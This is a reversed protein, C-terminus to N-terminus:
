NNIGQGIDLRALSSSVVRSIRDQKGYHIDRYLSGILMSDQILQWENKDQFCFHTKTWWVRWGKIDMLEIVKKGVFPTISEVLKRCFDIDMDYGEYELLGSSLFKIQFYGPADFYDSPTIFSAHISTRSKPHFRGILEHSVSTLLPSFFEAATLRNIFTLYFELQREEHRQKKNLQEREAEVIANRIDYASALTNEIFPADM